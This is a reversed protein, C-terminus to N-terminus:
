TPLDARAPAGRSGRRRGCDRHAREAADAAIGDEEPLAAARSEDVDLAAAVDIEALAETREDEAVGIGVDGRGRVRRDVVAPRVARALGVREIEGLPDRAPQRPDLADPEDRGAGLRHHRRQADRARRRSAGRNELEFAAIVAVGVGHEHFRAATERAAHGRRARANGVADEAVGDDRREVVVVRDIARELLVADRM